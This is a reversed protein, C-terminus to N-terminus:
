LSRLFALLLARDADPLADFRERATRGQGDHRRVAEEITAASGDHLYRTQLRLGWLPQTRMERGDAAAQSIGDGLTGMDHLM